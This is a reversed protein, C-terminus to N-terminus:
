ENPLQLIHLDAICVKLHEILLLLERIEERTIRRLKYPQLRENISRRLDDIGVIVAAVTSENEAQM